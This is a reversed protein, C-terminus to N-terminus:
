FLVVINSHVVTSYNEPPASFCIEFSYPPHTGLGGHSRAQHATRSLIHVELVTHLKLSPIHLTCHIDLSIRTLTHDICQTMELLYVWLVHM